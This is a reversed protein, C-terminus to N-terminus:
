LETDTGKFGLSYIANPARGGHEDPVQVALTKLKEVPDSAYERSEKSKRPGRTMPWCIQVPLHTLQVCSM